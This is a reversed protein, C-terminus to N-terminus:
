RSHYTFGLALQAVRGSAADPLEVPEGRILNGKLGPRMTDPTLIPILSSALLIVLLM